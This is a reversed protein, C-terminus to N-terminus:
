LARGHVFLLTDNEFGPLSSFDRIVHCGNGTVSFQCGESGCEAMTDPNTDNVSTGPPILGGNEGGNYCAEGYTPTNENGDCRLYSMLSGGNGGLLGAIVFCSQDYSDVILGFQPGVSNCCSDDVMEGDAKVCSDPADGGYVVWYSGSTEGNGDAVVALFLLSAFLFSYRRFIGSFYRKTCLIKNLICIHVFFIRHLYPESYRNFFTMM